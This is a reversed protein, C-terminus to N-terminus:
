RIQRNDRAVKSVYYKCLLDYLVLEYHRNKSIFLRNMIMHIHHILFNKMSVSTSSMKNIKEGIILIESSHLSIPLILKHFEHEINEKDFVVKILSEFQRYKKKFLTMDKCNFELKFSNSVELLLLSKSKYDLNFNSLLDDIIKLGAMWRYNEDSSNINRLISLVSISNFHFISETHEILKPSYRELERTYTDIQIKWITIGIRNKLMRNLINLVTGIDKENFLLLRLRIHNNPDAYRIFFWKDIISKKSLKQIFNYIENTLIEEATKIGTYIKIYIWKSGPFFDRQIKM